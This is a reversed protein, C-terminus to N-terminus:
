IVETLPEFALADRWARSNTSNGFRTVWRGDDGRTWIDDEVDRVAKVGVPEPDGVGWVRPKRETPIPMMADARRILEAAQYRLEQAAERLVDDSPKELKVTYYLTFDNWSKNMCGPFKFVTSNGVRTWMDGDTDPIETVWEPMVDGTEFEVFTIEKM